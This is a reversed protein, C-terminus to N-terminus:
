LGKVSAIVQGVEDDSMSPYLPLSLARTYYTEAVPCKGYAYGYTQRYWPQLHVPIYLVQTGIGQERLEMMVETRTKGIKDFDIQVTYLHWSIENRNCEDSVGPTELWTIGALAENYRAVIDRRRAIFEPLRKLQSRGLACQLDTIRFNFGLHQMEYYWPGHEALGLEESGLGIFEEHDRTIGHSRLLRATQAYQDNDTVL